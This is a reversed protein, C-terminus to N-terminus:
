QNNKNALLLRAVTKAETIYESTEDAIHSLQTSTYNEYKKKLIEGTKDTKKKGTLWKYLLVPISIPLTIIILLIIGAWQLLSQSKKKSKETLVRWVEDKKDDYLLRIYEEVEAVSAGVQFVPKKPHTILVVDAMTNYTFNFTISTTADIIFAILPYFPTKYGEAEAITKAKQYEEQHPFHKLIHLASELSVEEIVKFQDFTEAYRIKCTFTNM